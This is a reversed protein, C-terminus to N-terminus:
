FRGLGCAHLRCAHVKQEHPGLTGSAEKINGRPWHQSQEVSSAAQLSNSGQWPYWTGFKALRRLCPVSCQRHCQFNSTRHIDAAPLPTHISPARGATFGRTFSVRLVQPADQVRSSLDFGGATVAMIKALLVRLWVTCPLSRTRRGRRRDELGLGGLLM